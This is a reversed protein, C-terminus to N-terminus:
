LKTGSELDFFSQESSALCLLQTGFLCLAQGKVLELINWRWSLNWTCLTAWMWLVCRTPQLSSNCLNLTKDLSRPISVQCETILGWQFMVPCLLGPWSCLFLLCLPMQYILLHGLCCFFYWTDAICLGVHAQLPQCSMFNSWFCGHLGM